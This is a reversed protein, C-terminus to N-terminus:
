ERRYERLARALAELEAELSALSRSADDVNGQQGASEIAQAVEAARVGGCSAVLGKLAHATGRISPADKSAVAHRLSNLAPPVDELVFGMLEIFLQKDGGLRRLAGEVDLVPSSTMSHVRM